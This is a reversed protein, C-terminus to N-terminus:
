QEVREVPHDVRYQAGEPEIAPTSMQFPTPMAVRIKMAPM